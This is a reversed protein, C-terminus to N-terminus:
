NPFTGVDPLQLSSPRTIVHGAKWNEARSHAENMQSQSLGGTAIQIANVGPDGQERALQLWSYAIAEDRSVGWGMHYMYALGLFAKSNGSEAALSLLRFAESLNQQIGQGKLYLVGLNAQALVYGQSASKSYWKVAQELSPRLGVGKELCYGLDFQAEALGRDAARHFLKAAEVPDAKGTGTGTLYAFGL